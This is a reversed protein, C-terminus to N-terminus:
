FIFDQLSSIGISFTDIQIPLAQWIFPDLSTIARRLFSIASFWRSSLTERLPDKQVPFQWCATQTVIPSVRYESDGSVVSSKKRFSIMVLTLAQIM